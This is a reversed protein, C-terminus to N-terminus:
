DRRRPAWFARLMPLLLDDGDVLSSLAAAASTGPLDVLMADCGSRAMGQIAADLARRKSDLDMDGIVVLLRLNGLATRQPGRQLTVTPPLVFVCGDLSQLLKPKAALLASISAATAGSGVLQRCPPSGTARRQRAVERWVREIEDAGVQLSDRARAPLMRVVVEGNAARLLGRMREGQAREADTRALWLIPSPAAEFPADVQRARPAHAVVADPEAAVGLRSPVSEAPAGKALVRDLFRVVRPVLDGRGRAAAFLYNVHDWERRGECVSEVGADRLRDGVLRACLALGPIDRQGWLVLSPPDGAGAHRWTSAARRAAEDQGFVADLAFHRPRVEYVGSLLVAAAIRAASTGPAAAGARLQEDFAVWSALHAGSSHGMVVIRERDCGYSPAIRHLFEVARAVDEAMEAPRAFPFLRTNALAMAYGRQAFAIGLGRLHEKRGGTWSGGHVFLVMPVPADAPIPGAGGPGSGFAAPLILDLRHRRPAGGVETYRLDEHLVTEAGGAGGGAAPVPGSPSGSPPGTPRDPPSETSPLSPSQAALVRLALLLLLWASRM